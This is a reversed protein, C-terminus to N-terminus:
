FNQPRTHGDIKVKLRGNFIPSQVAQLHHM